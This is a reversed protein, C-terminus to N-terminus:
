PAWNPLGLVWSGWAAAARGDKDFGAALGVPNAFTLGWLTQSLRQSRAQYASAFQSQAFRRVPQAWGRGPTAALWNLATLAQAQAQEPDFRLREFLIPLLSLKYIDRM